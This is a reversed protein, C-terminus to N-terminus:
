KFRVKYFSRAAEPSERTVSNNFSMIAGCARNKCEYYLIPPNFRLHGLTEKVPGGCFPCPPLIDRNENM